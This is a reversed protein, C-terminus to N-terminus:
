RQPQSPQPDGIAESNQNSVKTTGETPNKLPESTVDFYVPYHDSVHGEDGPLVHVDNTRTGEQLVHPPGAIWPATMLNTTVFVRDFCAPPFLLAPDGVRTPCTTREEISRGHWLDLYASLPTFSPDKAFQANDPDVNTDGIVVVEYENEPDNRLVNRADADLIELARQRQLQNRHADGFNSKLHLGYVLLRHHPGADIEFTLLGRVPRVAGNTRSFRITRVQKLPIRSLVAINLPDVDGWSFRFFTIYGSLYPEALTNNLLRLAYKNEVEQLVLVDPNIKAIIAAAGKAHGAVRNESFEPPDEFGDRFNELNYSAIRIYKQIHPPVPFDNTAERPRIVEWSDYSSFLPDDPTIENTPVSASYYAEIADKPAELLQDEKSIGLAALPLCTLAAM